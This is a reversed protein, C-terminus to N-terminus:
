VAIATAPAPFRLVLLGLACIPLGLLLVADVAQYSGLHDRGFGALASGLTALTIFPTILGNARAFNAAAFHDALVAAILPILGGVAFGMVPVAFLKLDYSRSFANLVSTLANITGAALLLPWHAMRDSLFGFVLLGPLAVLGTLTHNTATEGAGGGM